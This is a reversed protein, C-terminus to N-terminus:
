AFAPELNKEWAGTSGHWVGGHEREGTRLRDFPGSGGEM